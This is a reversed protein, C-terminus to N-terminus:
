EISVGAQAALTTALAQDIGTKSAPRAILFCFSNGIASQYVPHVFDEGFQSNLSVRLILDPLIFYFISLCFSFLFKV